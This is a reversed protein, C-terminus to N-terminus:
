RRRLSRPLPASAPRPPERNRSQSSGAALSAVARSQALKAALENPFMALPPACIFRVSDRAETSPRTRRPEGVASTLAACRDRRQFGRPQVRDGRTGKWRMPECTLRGRTHRWATCGEGHLVTRVEVDGDGLRAIAVPMTMHRVLRKRRDARRQGAVDADSPESPTVTSATLPAVCFSIGVSLQRQPHPAAVPLSRGASRSRPAHTIRLLNAAGPSGLPPGAIILVREGAGALGLEAALHAADDTMAAIGRPQAAVRPELGWVLGLRRAVKDDPRSPWCRTCRGSARWGGRRAAPPPTPSSAPPPGPRRRGADGRRDARRRGRRRGRRARRADPEALQPRAEVRRIIADM